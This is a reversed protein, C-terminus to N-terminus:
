SSTRDLRIGDVAFRGTVLRCLAAHAITLGFVGTVTALSGLPRRSEEGRVCNADRKEGCIPKERSYVCPIGTGVGRARLRQRVERALPCGQTRMIDDLRIATLDTRLAAGMSSIVPVGRTWCAALLAVKADIQDIADVLLDPVTDFVQAVSAENIFSDNTTVVCSSNIDLVRARGLDTKKQGVTSVRALIQRNINSEEVADGDILHLRGVGARALGELCHGGVAGLGVVTVRAQRIRALAEAGLLLETRHFLNM